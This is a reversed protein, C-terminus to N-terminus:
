RGLRTQVTVSQEYISKLYVRGGDIAKWRSSVSVLLSIKLKTSHWTKEMDSISLVLEAEDNTIQKKEPLIKWFYAFSGIARSTVSCFLVFFVTSCKRLCSGIDYFLENCFFLFVNM